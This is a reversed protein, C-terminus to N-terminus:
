VYSENKIIFLWDPIKSKIKNEANKDKVIITGNSPINKDFLDPDSNLPFTFNSIDIYILNSCEYFMKNINKNPNVIFNSLDISILSSCGYFMNYMSRVKQTNFKSLDISKLNSCSSFIGNMTELNNTDFHSINILTLSYCEKFMFDMNTAKSTNFNSINLSTIKKCGNFLNSFSTIQTTDFNSLDLSNLSSCGFFMEVIYKLEKIKINPFIIKELEKCEYFMRNMSIVKSIDIKSINIVKLSTCGNFMNDLITVDKIEFNTFDISTLAKCSQFMSHMSEIKINSFLSSFYIERMQACNNFINNSLSDMDLLMFITHYGYGLKYANNIETKIDGDILIEKIKNKYNLNILNIENNPNDVFYIAKFSYNLICEENVLKYGDNCKSCKNIGEDCSLCKNGEGIDCPNCSKLIYNEYLPFYNSICSSCINSEKTGSCKNCYKLSCQQCESKSDTPLFYGSPCDKPQLLKYIILIILLIIFIVITFIILKMRLSLKSKVKIENDDNKSPTSMNDFNLFQPSDNDEDHEENFEM